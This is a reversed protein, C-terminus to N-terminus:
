RDDGSGKIADREKRDRLKERIWDELEQVSDCGVCLKILHLAVTIAASKPTGAPALPAERRLSRLSLDPIPALGM